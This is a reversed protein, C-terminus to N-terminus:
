NGGADVYNGYGLWQAVKWNVGVNDTIGDRSWDGMILNNLLIYSKQEFSEPTVHSMNEFTQTREPSVNGMQSTISVIGDNDLTGIWYSLSVPPDDKSYTANLLRQLLERVWSGRDRGNDRFNGVVAYWETNPINADPLSKIPDRGPLLSYVAGESDPRDKYAIPM